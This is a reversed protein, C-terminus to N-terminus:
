DAKAMWRVLWAAPYFWLLGAVALVIIAGWWPLAMLWTVYIETVIVPYVILLGIFGFVGWLKRARQQM